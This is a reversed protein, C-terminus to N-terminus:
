SRDCACRVEAKDDILAYKIFEDRVLASVVLFVAYFYVAHKGLIKTFVRTNHELHATANYNAVHLIIGAAATCFTGGFSM